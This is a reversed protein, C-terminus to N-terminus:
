FYGEIEIKLNTIEHIEVSMKMHNLLTLTYAKNFDFHHRDYINVWLRREEKSMKDWLEAGGRAIWEERVEDYAEEPYEFCNIGEIQLNDYRLDDECDKIYASFNKLRKYDEKSCAVYSHVSSSNTKFLGPRIVRKM